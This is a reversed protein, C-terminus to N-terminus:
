RNAITWPLTLNIIGTVMRWSSSLQMYLTRDSLSQLCAVSSEVSGTRMILLFDRDVEGLPGSFPTM